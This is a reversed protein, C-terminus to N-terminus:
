NTIKTIRGTTKKIEEKHKKTKTKIEKTKTIKTKQQGGVDKYSEKKREEKRKTLM